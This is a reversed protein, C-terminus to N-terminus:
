QWAELMVRMRERRAGDEALGLCQPGSDPLAYCRLEDLDPHRCLAAGPEDEVCALTTPGWELIFAVPAPAEPEPQKLPEVPETGCQAAVTTSAAFLAAAILTKM